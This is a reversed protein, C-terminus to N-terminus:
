KSIDNLSREKDTEKMFKNLSTNKNREELLELVRRVKENFEEPKTCIRIKNVSKIKNTPLAEVGPLAAPKIVQNEHSLVVDSDLLKDNYLKNVMSEDLFSTREKGYYNIENIGKSIILLGVDNEQEPVRSRIAIHQYSPYSFRVVLTGDKLTQANEIAKKAEEDIEPTIGNRKANIKYESEKIKKVMESIEEDTMFIQKGYKRIGSIGGKFYEAVFKQDLTLEKDILRSVQEIASDKDEIELKSITLNGELKNLLNRQNIEEKNKRNIHNDYTINNCPVDGSLKIGYINSFDPVMKTAIGNINQTRESIKRIANKIEPELENWSTENTIFLDKEEKYGQEKLIKTIEVSELDKQPVIFIKDKM